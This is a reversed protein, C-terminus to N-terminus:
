PPNLLPPRVYGARLQKVYPDCPLQLNSAAIKATFLTTYKRPSLYSSIHKASRTRSLRVELHGDTVDDKNAMM